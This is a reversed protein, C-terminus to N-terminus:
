LGKKKIVIMKYKSKSKHNNEKDEYIYVLSKECLITYKVKSNNIIENLTSVKKSNDQICICLVGDDKLSSLIKLLFNREKELDNKEFHFMSDLLVFDYKNFDEFKYIDDVFGELNLNKDKVKTLMQEVGVKSNDIATVKYGMKALPIANRGQGCGLDLLSGKQKISSFFEILEPYPQGFLDETLYYNDYSNM